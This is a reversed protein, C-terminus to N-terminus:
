VVFYALYAAAAWCAFAGYFISRALPWRGLWEVGSAALIAYCPLLGLTYTGKVVCYMPVTLFGYLMAALYFGLFVLAFLLGKKASQRPHRVARIAGIAMASIPIFGLWVGSLAFGYNWHPRAEYIVMSGLYGDMWTSGYLGNWFGLVSSCVPRFLVHGFRYFQAPSRYGPYQWWRINREPEWGGFFPKGLQIQNRLYWWGAIVFAAACIIAFVRLAQGVRRQKAEGTAMTAYLILAALPFLVLVATAKALLAVGLAVGLCVVARPRRGRGPDLLFRMGLLVVVAVTCGALPENGIYQSMYLNMPMFGALVTGVAQLDQRDPWVYRLTRYAIEIQAIGCLIPVLKLSRMFIGENGDLLWYLPASLLYYLPAQFMTWGEPALPIRLNEAVYKVYAIHGAIDFGIWAPIKGLNNAALLVWALVLLWRFVRM